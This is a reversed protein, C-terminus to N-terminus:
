CENVLSKTEAKRDNNYCVDECRFYYFAMCEWPCFWLKFFAWFLNQVTWMDSLSTCAWIAVSSLSWFNRSTQVYATVLTTQLEQPINTCHQAPVSSVILLKYFDGKSPTQSSLLLCLCHSAQVCIGFSNWDHSRLCPDTKNKLSIYHLSEYYLSWTHILM